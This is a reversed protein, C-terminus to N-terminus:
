SNELPRVWQLPIAGLPVLILLASEVSIDVIGGFLTDGKFILYLLENVAPVQMVIDVIPLCSRLIVTRYYLGWALNPSDKASGMKNSLRKPGLIAVGPFCPFSRESIDVVQVLPRCFVELPVIIVDGEAITISVEDMLGMAVGQDNSGHHGVVVHM